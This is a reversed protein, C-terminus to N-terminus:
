EAEPYSGLVRMFLTAERLHELARAIPADSVHGQVDVFFVYEWPTKKTPRSEIMTMNIDYKDLVALSRFLAGAEHRVSFMISTKDRGSREQERARGIVLFRTRNYPLDQIKEGITNLGYMEAALITGVAAAGPEEAALQAARSTSSVEQVEARPLNTKLWVRCQALPQRMSYIRTVQAMDSRSLLYLDVDLYIEACIDLSSEAFMDLTDNIVGETSNEMPVVGFTAVGKEVQTFVDAISEAASAKAGAGFKRLVAIHTFTGAPGLYAITAPMELQRHVAIIERYINILGADPLPGPNAAILRDFIQRERAPSFLDKARRRKQRGIALAIKARENLLALVQDDIRDIVAREREISM